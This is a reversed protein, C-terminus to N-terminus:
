IRSKTEIHTHPTLGPPFWDSFLYGKQLSGKYRMHTPCHLLPHPNTQKDQTQVMDPTVERGAAAAPLVPPPGGGGREGGGRGYLTECAGEGARREGGQKGAPSVVANGNTELFGGQTNTAGSQALKSNAGLVSGPRSLGAENGAGQGENGQPGRVTQGRAAEILESIQVSHVGM